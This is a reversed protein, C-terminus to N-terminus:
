GVKDIDLYKPEKKNKEVYTILMPGIVNMEGHRDVSRGVMRRIHEM